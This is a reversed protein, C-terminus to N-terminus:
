FHRKAFAWGSGHKLYKEFAEAKSDDHFRIVLVDRWPAFKRTHPSKKANHESLRRPFDDTLGIYRRSPQAISELLYVYKM